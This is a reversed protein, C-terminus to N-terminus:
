NQQCYHQHETHLQCRVLLQRQRTRRDPVSGTQLKHIKSFCTLHFPLDRCVRPLRHRSQHRISELQTLIPCTSARTHTNQNNQVRNVSLRNVHENSGCPSISSVRELRSFKACYAMSHRVPTQFISIARKPRAGSQGSHQCSPPNRKVYKPTKVNQLNVTHNQSHMSVIRTNNIAKPQFNQQYLTPHTGFIIDVTFILNIVYHHYSKM